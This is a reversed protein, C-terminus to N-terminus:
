KKIRITITHRDLKTTTLIEHQNAKCFDNIGAEFVPDDGTISLIQGTNLKEIAQSLKVIPIPCCFGIVSLHNDPNTM